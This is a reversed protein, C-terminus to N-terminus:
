SRWFNGSMRGLGPCSGPLLLLEASPDSASIKPRSSLPRVSLSSDRQVCLQEMGVPLTCGDSFRDWATQTMRACSYSLRAELVLSPPSCIVQVVDHGM